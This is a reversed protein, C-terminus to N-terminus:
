YQDLIKKFRHLGDKLVSLPCAMNIRIFGEGNNGYTTGETIWLSEEKLAQAALESSTANLASCDIWALYTAELPLVKLKPAHEQLFSKLYKYNTYIYQKLEELWPESENYAAILAEVGFPNIEAVENAMLAENIKTRVESNAVVINAIQLGAINFAKSPSVCTITQELFEKNISAIPTYGHKAFTLDCHVDDSLILVNNKICINGLQILEEKTWARGVPNHPNCLLLLKVKSDATLKELQDFNIRYNGEEYILENHVIECQNNKISSFFYNYVPSQVIVKDGPNTLAKIIATLAPVVGITYLIWEKDISFHYRRDFWSILAEQCSPLVKTYGFIGHQVRKTLADVIPQAVHFDMDAVWLPLINEDPVSDWKVSHTNKRPIIQDFRNM